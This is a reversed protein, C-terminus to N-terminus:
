PALTEVDLTYGLVLNVLWLRGNWPDAGAYHVEEILRGDHRLRRLRARPESVQWAADAADGTGHAFKAQWAALPWLALEIDALVREPSLDKPAYPSLDAHVERGDYSLTFAREGLPGIAIVTLLQPTVSLACQLTIERDGFAFNLVQTAGRAATFASPPLLPAVPPATQPLLACGTLMLTTLALGRGAGRIVFHM